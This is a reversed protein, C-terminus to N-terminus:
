ANGVIDTAEIPKKEIQALIQNIESIRKSRALINILYVCTAYAEDGISTVIQNREAKLKIPDPPITKIKKANAM